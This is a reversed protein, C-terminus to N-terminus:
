NGSAHCEGVTVSIKANSHILQFNISFYFQHHKLKLEIKKINLFIPSSVGLVDELM